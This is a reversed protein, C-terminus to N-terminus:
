SVATWFADLAEQRGEYHCHQIEKARSLTDYQIMEYGTTKRNLKLM